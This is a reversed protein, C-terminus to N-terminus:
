RRIRGWEERERRRLEVHEDSEGFPLEV